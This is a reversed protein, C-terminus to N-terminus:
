LLLNKPIRKPAKYIKSQETYKYEENKEKGSTTLLNRAIKRKCSLDSPTPAKLVGLLSVGGSTSLSSNSVSELCASRGTSSSLPSAVIDSKYLSGCDKGDIADNSPKRLETESTNSEASSDYEICELVNIM